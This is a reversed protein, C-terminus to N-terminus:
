FDRAFNHLRSRSCNWPRVAAGSAALLSRLLVRNVDVIKGLPIPEGPEVLEDGTSLLGVTVDRRVSVERVGSAAMVGKHRADILTGMPVLIEGRGIDEGRPRINAGESLVKGVRLMSGVVDVDEEPIVAAVGQPVQAGTTIRVAAGGSVPITMSRGAQIRDVIPLWASGDAELDDIRLGYGDMASNDFRPLSVPSRIDQVTIRGAADCITLEERDRLAEVGELIIQPAHAPDFVQRGKPHREHASDSCHARVSAGTHMSLTVAAEAPLRLMPIKVYAMDRKGTPRLNM